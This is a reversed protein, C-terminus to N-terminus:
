CGFSEQDFCLSSPPPLGPFYRWDLLLTWCSSMGQFSRARPVLNGRDWIKAAATCMQRSMVLEQSFWIYPYCSYNQRMCIFYLVLYLFHHCPNQNERQKEHSFPFLLLKLLDAKCRSSFVISNQHKTVNTIQLRSSSMWTFKSMLHNTDQLLQVIQQFKDHSWNLAAVCECSEQFGSHNLLSPFYMTQSRMNHLGTPDFTNDQHPTHQYKLTLIFHVIFDHTSTQNKLFKINKWAVYAVTM